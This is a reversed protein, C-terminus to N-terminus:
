NSRIAEVPDLQSASYAPIFGSIIGILISITFGLIINTGSLQGIEFVNAALLTIIYTLLLGFFGGVTSLLVSEGLFQVLIFINKAGLSKQIGILNTREKVSVFMINAIGFGGVLISFGGIIWGAMGIVEFLGDFGKTILSTENLAFNDESRPKLSRIGRLLGTLEDMMEANSVNPKAKAYIM